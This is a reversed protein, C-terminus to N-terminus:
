NPKREPPFIAEGISVIPNGLKKMREGYEELSEGERPECEPPPANEDTPKSPLM